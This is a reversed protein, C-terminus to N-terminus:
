PAMTHLVTGAAGAFTLRRLLSLWAPLRVKAPSEDCLALCAATYDEWSRYTVVPAVLLTLPRAPFYRSSM